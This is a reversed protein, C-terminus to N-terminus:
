RTHRWPASVKFSSQHLKEAAAFSVAFFAAARQCLFQAGARQLTPRGRGIEAGGPLSPGGPRGRTLVARAIRPAGPPRARGVLKWGLFGFRGDVVSVGGSAPRSRRARRPGASRTRGPSFSHGGATSCTPPSRSSPIAAETVRALARPALASSEVRSSVHGADERWWPFAARRRVPGGHGGHARAGHGGHSFFAFGRFVEGAGPGM